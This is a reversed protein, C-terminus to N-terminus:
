KGIKDAVFINTVVTAITVDRAAFIFVATKSM